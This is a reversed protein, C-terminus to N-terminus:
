IWSRYKIGPNPGVPVLDVPVFDLCIWRYKVGPNSVVFDSGFSSQTDDWSRDINLQDLRLISKKEIKDCIPFITKVDCKNKM